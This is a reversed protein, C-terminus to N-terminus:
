GHEESMVVVGGEERGEGEKALAKEIIAESGWRDGGGGSGGNVMAEEGVVGGFEEM